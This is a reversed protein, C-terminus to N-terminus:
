IEAQISVIHPKHCPHSRNLPMTNMSLWGIDKWVNSTSSSFEWGYDRPKVVKRRVRASVQAHLELDVSPLPVSTILDREVLRQSLYSMSQSPYSFPYRRDLNFFQSGVTCKSLILCIMEFKHKSLTLVFNGSRYLSKYKRLSYLLEREINSLQKIEAYARVVAGYDFLYRGREALTLIALNRIAVALVDSAWARETPTNVNSTASTLLRVTEEIEKKYSPKPLFLSLEHKLRDADDHIILAEQKLHQAFLAGRDMLAKMRTWNYSAVSWGQSELVTRRKSRRVRDDDVILYDRDSLRDLSDRAVSGFIAESSVREHECVIM